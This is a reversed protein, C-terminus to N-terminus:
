GTVPQDELEPEVCRGIQEIVWWASWDAVAYRASPGERRRSVMGAQHLLAM